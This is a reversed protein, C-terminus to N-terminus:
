VRRGVLAMIGPLRAMMSAAPRDPDEPELMREIRFGADAMANVMDAATHFFEVIPLDISWGGFKDAIPTGCFSSDYEPSRDNYDRVVVLSGDKEELCVSAPHGNVLLLRGGPKLVRYWTRCAGFINELWGIYTAYVIDFENDPIPLLTQSDAVAFKVPLGIKQANRKAIEIATPCVDCATVDAGLNAWSFAQMADCACAIDLLKLGRVDGLLEMEYDGLNIGGEAYFKHFDPNARILFEMRAPQYADWARRIMELHEESSYRPTYDVESM